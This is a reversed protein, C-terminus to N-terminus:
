CLFFLYPSLPDGQRIGRSPIVYKKNEGNINFSYSVSTICEMIWKVWLQSFGMKEMVAKLYGWEVRDYAKSMDLKIAIYGDKGQRKNKLFHLCEHSIILNDM